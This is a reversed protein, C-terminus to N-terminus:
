CQCGFYWAVHTLDLQNAAMCTKGFAFFQSGNTFWSKMFVGRGWTSYVIALVGSICPLGAFISGILEGDHESTEGNSKQVRPMKGHCRSLVGISSAGNSCVTSVLVPLPLLYEDPTTGLDFDSGPTADGM